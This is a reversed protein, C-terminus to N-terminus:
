GFIYLFLVFIPCLFAFRVVFPLLWSSELLEVVADLQQETEELSGNNDIVFSAKRAKEEMPMQARIRKEAEDTALEDRLAVRWLQTDDNCAVVITKQVFRDMKTEYLLPIDLFIFKRLHVAEWLIRKIMEKIVEGHTIANLRKRKEVDTFVLEALKDRRLVGGNEDDFFSDGFETRLRNYATKGPEVVMRAIEDADVVSYGRERLMRSVTSKGTGIGGTLGVLFM